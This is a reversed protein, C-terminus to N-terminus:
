QVENEACRRFLNNGSDAETSINSNVVKELGL